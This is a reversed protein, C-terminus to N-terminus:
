IKVNPAPPSSFFSFFAFEPSHHRASFSSRICFSERQQHWEAEARESLAAHQSIHWSLCAASNLLILFVCRLATGIANQETLRMAVLIAMPSHPFRPTAYIAWRASPFNRLYYLLHLKSIPHCSVYWHFVSTHNLEFYQTSKRRLMSCCNKLIICSNKKQLILFQLQWTTRKM